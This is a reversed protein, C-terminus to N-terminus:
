RQSSRPRGCWLTPRTTRKSRASTSFQILAWPEFCCLPLLRRRHVDDTVNSDAGFFLLSLAKAGLVVPLMVVFIGLSYILTALLIRKKEKFINAFYAPLLYSICCPAFLAVIGAAFAAVLSIQYM